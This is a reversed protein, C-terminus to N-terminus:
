VGFTAANWGAIFGRQWERKEILSLGTPLYQRVLYAYEYGTLFFYAGYKEEQEMQVYIRRAAEYGDMFTVSFTGIYVVKLRPPRICLSIESFEVSSALAPTEPQKGQSPVPTLPIITSSSTTEVHSLM